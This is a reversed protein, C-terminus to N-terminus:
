SGSLLIITPKLLLSRFASIVIDLVRREYEGSYYLLHAPCKCDTAGFKLIPTKFIGSNLLRRALMCELDNSTVAFIIARVHVYSSSLLFDIHWKLRKKKRLHRLIRWKLSTSAKGRASGVYVYIGKQFICDGLKGVKLVISREIYLVLAYIGPRKPLNIMNM